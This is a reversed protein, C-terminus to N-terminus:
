TTSCDGAFIIQGMALVNSKPCKAFLVLISKDLGEKPFGSINLCQYEVM